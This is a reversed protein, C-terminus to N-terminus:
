ANDFPNNLDETTDDKSVLLCFLNNNPDSEVQRLRKKDFYFWLVEGMATQVPIDLRACEQDKIASHITAEYDQRLEEALLNGFYNKYRLKMSTKNCAFSKYFKENGFNVTLNEHVNLTFAPRSRTEIFKELYYPKNDIIPHVKMFLQKKDPTAYTFVLDCELDDGMAGVTTTNERVSHLNTELDTVIDAFMAEINIDRGLVTQMSIIDDKESFYQLALDNAMVARRTEIDVVIIANIANYTKQLSDLNNWDM